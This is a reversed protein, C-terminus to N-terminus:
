DTLWGTLFTRPSTAPCLLTQARQSDSAHYLPTGTCLAEFKYGWYMFRDNKSGPAPADRGSTNIELLLMGGADAPGASSGAAAGPRQLFTADVVWEDGQALPTM